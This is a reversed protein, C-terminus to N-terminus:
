APVTVYERRALMAKVMAKRSKSNRNRWLRACKVWTFFGVLILVIVGGVISTRILGLYEEGSGSSWWCSGYRGIVWCANLNYALNLNIWVKEETINEAVMLNRLITNQRPVRPVDFIYNEPCASLARDYTFTNRTLVWVSPNDAKRCAVRYQNACDNAEWRGNSKKIAACRLAESGAPENVDWSWITSLVNDALHGSDVASYITFPDSYNPQTFYPSYGCETLHLADEYSFPKQEDDVFDWSGENVCTTETANMLGGVSDSSFITNNDYMTLRFTSNDSSAITGYGVMLQVREQILYLWQPWSVQAVTQKIIPFYPERGQAYFSASINIRDLTLNSPTYIRPLLATNPSISQQIIQGLNSDTRTTAETVNTSLDHLNLVLFILDTKFPSRSVETSVLYDNVTELLNSFKFKSACTYGNPLSVDDGGAASSPAAATANNHRISFPCLQWDKDVPDWYLDVVLRKYGMILVNDVQSLRHASYDKGFFATSLELAPWVLQDITVNMAIDRQIRMATTINPSNFSINQYPTDGLYTFPQAIQDYLPWTTASIKSSLLLLLVCRISALLM